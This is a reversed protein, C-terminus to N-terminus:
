KAVQEQERQKLKRYFEEGQQKFENDFELATLPIGDGTFGARKIEGDLESLTDSLRDKM